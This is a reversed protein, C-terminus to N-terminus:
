LKELKQRTEKGSSINKMSVIYTGKSLTNINEEFNTIGKDVVHTKQILKQGQMNTITLLVNEQVESNVTVTIINGAPNPYINILGAKLDSFKVSRVPSYSFSGDKDIMKLRYFRVGTNNVRFDQQTYRTPFNNGKALTTAVTFFTSGNISAQVEFRSVNVEAATIWTIQVNNSSTKTVDFNVLQVPLAVADCLTAVISGFILAGTTSLARGNLITGDNLSIGGNAIITGKFVTNNLTVAGNIRWFVNCAAAGNTLIIQAGSSSAFAGDVLFIFVASPDGAADLTLNGNLTTAAGTCYVGPALTEGTGYGVGHVSDCTRRGLDAYASDIDIGAQTAVPDGFHKAGALVGPPFASVAGTVNGVSGLVIASSTDCTFQGNVTFLVFPVATNLNPAQGFVSSSGLFYFAATLSFLIKKM